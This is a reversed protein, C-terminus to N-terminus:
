AGGEGGGGPAANGRFISDTITLTGGYGHFIGGGANPGQNDRIAVDDITLTASDTLIGGGAVAFGEEITLGSISVPDFDAGVTDPNIFFIRSDGADHVDDDNADGSISIVDRGPGQITLAAQIPLAGAILRIQGALQPSFTITDAAADANAATM